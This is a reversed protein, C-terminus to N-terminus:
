VCDQWCAAGGRANSMYSIYTMNMHAVGVGHVRMVNWLLWGAMQPEGSDRGCAHQTCQACSGLDCPECWRAGGWAHQVTCRWGVRAAGGARVRSLCLDCLLQHVDFSPVGPGPTQLHPNSLSTGHTTSKSTSVMTMQQAVRSPLGVRLSGNLGSPYFGTPVPDCGSRSPTRTPGGTGV